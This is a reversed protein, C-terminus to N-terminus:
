RLGPRRVSVTVPYRTDLYRHWWSSDPQYILEEFLSYDPDSDRVLSDAVPYMPRVARIFPMATRPVSILQGAMPGDVCYISVQATVPDGRDM